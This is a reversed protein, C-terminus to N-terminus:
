TIPPINLKEKPFPLEFDFQIDGIHLGFEKIEIRLIKNDKSLIPKENFENPFSLLFSKYPLRGYTREFHYLSLPVTGNTKTKLTIYENLGFLLKNLWAQYSEQGEARLKEMVIDRRPDDYALKLRFHLGNRYDNYRKVISSDTDAIKQKIQAATLTTDQKIVQIDDDYHELQPLILAEPTQYILTVTVGNRSVVKQYLSDESHIYDRYSSVSDFERSCGALVVILYIVVIGYRSM